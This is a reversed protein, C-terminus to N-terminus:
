MNIWIGATNRYLWLLIFSSSISVSTQCRTKMRCFRESAWDTQKHRNDGAWYCSCARFCDSDTILIYGALHIYHNRNTVWLLFYQKNKKSVFYASYFLISVSTNSDRSQPLVAWTSPFWPCISGTNNPKLCCLASLLASIM